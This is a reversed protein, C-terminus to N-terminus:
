KCDKFKAMLTTDAAAKARLAAFEPRDLFDVIGFPPAPDLGNDRMWQALVADNAANPPRLCAMFKKAAADPPLGSARKADFGKQRLEHMVEDPSPLRDALAKASRQASAGAEQTVAAVAGALTGAAYYAELDAAAQMLPYREPLEALGALMRLRVTNREAEMQALLAPLTRDFYVNKDISAKSGVLGGALANAATKASEGSSLVGAINLGITAIDVGVASGVRQAYLEARFAAYRRDILAVRGDIFANRVAMQANSSSAQHYATLADAYDKDIEALRPGSEPRDPAGQFSACGALTALLAATGILKIM